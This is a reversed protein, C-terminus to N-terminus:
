GLPLWRGRSEWSRILVTHSEWSRILVTHSVIGASWVLLRSESVPDPRSPEASTGRRYYSRGRAGRLTHFALPETPQSRPRAHPAVPLASDHIHYNSLYCPINTIHIHALRTSISHYARTWAISFGVLIGLALPRSFLVHPGHRARTHTRSAPSSSLEQGVAAKGSTPGSALRHGGAEARRWEADVRSRGCGALCGCVGSWRVVPWVKCCLERV